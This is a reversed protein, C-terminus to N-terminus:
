PGSAPQITIEDQQPAIWTAPDVTATAGTGQGSIILSPAAAQSVGAVRLLVATVTGQGALVVRARAHVVREMEHPETTEHFELQVPDYPDPVILIQPPFPYGAGPNDWTISQVAGTADITAHGVACVGPRPPAPVFVIPPLGYNKGPEVITVAGLSGGVIAHWSSNGASPVVHTTSQRYDSGGNTVEASQVAGSLNAVRFNFGDSRITAGWHRRRDKPVAPARILNIWQLEIPDKWQITSVDGGEVIWTGAPIPLANASNLVFRNTPATFPTTFLLPPHLAQPAPLGQGPGAIMDAM